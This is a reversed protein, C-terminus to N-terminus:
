SRRLVLPSMIAKIRRLAEFSERRWGPRALTLTGLRRTANALSTKYRGEGPGSPLFDYERMGSELYHEIALLHSVLGPRSKPDDEYHFGSQYFAVHGNAVLNYLVGILQDGCLVRLLQARGGAHGAAIFRRHFSQRHPTAFGGPKGRRQWYDTHLRQLESFAKLASDISDPVDIRLPGSKEFHRVTRRLQERTNKSLAGLYTSGERRLVEFDVYPSERWEVSAHWHPLAQRLADVALATGGNLVLEDIASREIHTAVAGYAAHQAGPQALLHNHEVVVRDKSDEGDTNLFGRRLRFPGRRVDRETVLCVALATQGPGEITLCSPNLEAHFEALWCRLWEPSLYATQPHSASTFLRAWREAFDDIAAESDDSGIASVLIGISNQDERSM